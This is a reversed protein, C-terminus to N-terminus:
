ARLRRSLSVATLLFDLNIAPLQIRSIFNTPGHRKRYRNIPNKGRTSTSAFISTPLSALTQARGALVRRSGAQSDFRLHYYCPVSLRHPQEQPFPHMHCRDPTQHGRQVVIHGVHGTGYIVGVRKKGRTVDHSCRRLALQSVLSPPIDPSPSCIVIYSGVTHSPITCVIYLYLGVLDFFRSAPCIELAIFRSAGKAFIKLCALLRPTV